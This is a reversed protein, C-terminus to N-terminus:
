GRPRQSPSPPPPTSPPRDDTRKEEFLSPLDTLWLSAEGLWRNDSERATLALSPFRSILSTRLMSWSLSAVPQVEGHLVALSFHKMAGRRRGGLLCKHALYYHFQGRDLTVDHKRTILGVERVILDVDLSAQGGHLRYAVLPAVACAPPGTEGLRIWLDWDALNSLEPDFVRVGCLATRAVVVGSCGGPVQNMSRLTAMVAQPAPPPAGGIIRQHRDIKVCGSYVWTAGAASAADLQASLKNPAWLDDDDLFAIWRGRAVDIGSNRAASVGLPEDHRVLEVRPDGLETIREATDDTSGDDVVIAELTVGQQRLVTNLTMGLLARRNHTPIVVSVDPVTATL